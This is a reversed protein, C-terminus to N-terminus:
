SSSARPTTQDPELDPNLLPAVTPVKGFLMTVLFYGASVALVWPWSLPGRHENTLVWVAGMGLVIWPQCNSRLGMAVFVAAVLFIFSGPIMQAQPWTSLLSFHAATFLALALTAFLPRAFDRKMM